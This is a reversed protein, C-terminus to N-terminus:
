FRKSSRIDDIETTNPRLVTWKTGESWETKGSLNHEFSERYKTVDKPIRYGNFRIKRAGIVKINEAQIVSKARGRGGKQVVGNVVLPFLKLFEIGFKTESLKTNRGMPSHCFDHYLLNKIIDINGDETEEGYPLELTDGISMAWEAVPSLNQEKQFILEETVPVKRLDIDSKHNMFYHMLKEAGGDKYFWNDLGGFYETDVRHADSVHLAFIRRAEFGVRVLWDPNGSLFFHLHNPVEYMPIFKDDIQLTPGTIFDKM